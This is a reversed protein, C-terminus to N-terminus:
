SLSRALIKVGVGIVLLGIIKDPTLPEKFIVIGLSTTLIISIAIVLPYAESLPLRSLLGVWIITSLAYVLCGALFIPNILLHKALQLPTKFSSEIQLSALKFMAQGVTLLISYLGLSFWPNKLMRDM